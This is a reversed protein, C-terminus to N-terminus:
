SKRRPKMIYPSPKTDQKEIPEKGLKKVKKEERKQSLISNANQILQTITKNNDNKLHEEGKKIYRTLLKIDKDRIGFELQSIIEESITKNIPLTKNYYSIVDELKINGEIIKSLENLDVSYKLAQVKAEVTAPFIDISDLLNNDDLQYTGMYIEGMTNYIMTTNIVNKRSISTEEKKLIFEQYKLYLIDLPIKNSEKRITKVIINNKDFSYEKEYLYYVFDKPPSNILELNEKSISFIKNETFQTQKAERFLTKTDLEQGNDFIFKNNRKNPIELLIAITNDPLLYSNGVKLQRGSLARNKIVLVPLSISTMRGIDEVTEPESPGAPGVPGVPGAPGTPGAPGVNLLIDTLQKINTFNVDEVIVKLKTKDLNLENLYNAYQILRIKQEKALEKIQQEDLKKIALIQTIYKKSKTLAETWLKTKNYDTIEKFKGDSSSKKLKRKFVINPLELLLNSKQLEEIKEKISICENKIYKCKMKNLGYSNIDNCSYENTFRNCADFKEKPSKKVFKTNVGERFLKTKGFKDTYEVLIYMTSTIYMESEEFEAPGEIYNYKRIDPNLFKSSYVPIGSDNFKFPVAYTIDFMDKYVIYVEGPSKVGLRQRYIYSVFSTYIKKPIVEPTNFTNESRKLYIQRQEDSYFKLKNMCLSYLERLDIDEKYDIKLLVALSYIEDDTYNRLGTELNIFGPFNGGYLYENEGIIYYYPIYFRDPAYQIKPVINTIIPAIYTNNAISYMLEKKKSKNDTIVKNIADIFKQRFNTPLKNQEEVLVKQYIELEEGRMNILLKIIPEFQEENIVKLIEDLRKINIYKINGEKIIFETVVPLILKPETILSCLEKYTSKVLDVFYNYKNVKDSYTYIINETIDSLKIIDNTTFDILNCQSFITYFTRRVEMRDKIKAVRYIRRSLLKNREKKLFTLMVRIPDKKPPIFLSALKIKSSEWKKYELLEFYIQEIELQNLKPNQKKFEIINDYIKDLEEKYKLYNESKPKWAYLYKFTKKPETYYDPLDEPPYILPLEMGILEIFPFSGMIYNELSDDFEKFIFIVKDINELYNKNDFNFIDNELVEIFEDNDPYFQFIYERLKNIGTKRQEVIIGQNKLLFESSYKNTVEFEPDKQTELYKNIKEINIFLIDAGKFDGTEELELMNVELINKLAVLYDEFKEFRRVLKTSKDDFSLQQVPTSLEYVEIIDTKNPKLKKDKLELYLDDDLPKVISYYKKDLVGPLVKYTRFYDPKLSISIVSGKEVYDTYQQEPLSKNFDKLLDQKSIKYYKAEEGLIEQLKQYTSPYERFKMVPIKNLKLREIYSLKNVINSDDICKLLEERSKIKLLIKLRDINLSDIPNLELFLKSEKRESYFEDFLKQIKLTNPVVLSYQIDKDTDKIEEVTRLKYGPIYKKVITIAKNLELYYILYKQLKIKPIDKKLIKPKDPWYINREKAVKKFYKEEEKILSELGKKFNKPVEAKVKKSTDSFDEYKLLLKYEFNLLNFYKKSYEFEDIKSKIFEEDLEKKFMRIKVIKQKDTDSTINFRKHILASKYKVLLNELAFTYDDIEGQILKDEISKLYTELNETIQEYNEGEGDDVYGEEEYIESENLLDDDQDLLEGLNDYDIDM